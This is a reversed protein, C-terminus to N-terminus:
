FRMQMADKLSRIYGDALSRIERQDRQSHSDYVGCSKMGAAKAGRIGRLTDEFVVCQSPHVGLAKAASYFVDPAPKGRRAEEAGCVADFLREMGNHKLAPAYLCQPLDTAAGLKYGKEKLLSLLSISHPKCAVNHGYEYAALRFWAGIIEEPKEKLSFRGATYVAASFFSMAGLAEAYGPPVPIGRDELFRVDVTEWVDMSDLLTGDLDFIAATINKM